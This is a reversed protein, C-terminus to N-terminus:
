MSVDPWSGDSGTRPPAALTEQLIPPHKRGTHRCAQRVENRVKGPDKLTTQLYEDIGFTAFTEDVQNGRCFVTLGGVVTSAQPAWSVCMPLHVSWANVKRLM